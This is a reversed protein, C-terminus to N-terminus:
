AAASQFGTPSKTPLVRTSTPRIFIAARAKSEASGTPTTNSELGYPATISLTGYIDETFRHMAYFNPVLENTGCSGHRSGSTLIAPTSGTDNVCLTPLVASLVSDVRTGGVELSTCAAASPNWFAASADNNANVTAGAMANGMNGAGQEVIQYGAAFAANVAVLAAAALIINTNKM